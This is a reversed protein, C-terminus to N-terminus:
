AILSDRRALRPSPGPRADRGAVAAASRRLSIPYGNMRDGAAGHVLPDAPTAPGVAVSGWSGSAPVHRSPVPPAFSVSHGFPTDVTADPGPMHRM